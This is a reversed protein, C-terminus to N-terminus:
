HDSKGSASPPAAPPKVGMWGKVTERFRQFAVYLGPIVFIGLFSAAIMGGFVATGVARQTAAGAGSSIVLPVLGLIFAFSTMM